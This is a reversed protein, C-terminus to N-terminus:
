HQVCAGVLNAIGAFILIAGFLIILIEFFTGRPGHSRLFWPVRDNWNDDARRIAKHFIVLVLGAVTFFASVVVRELPDPQM